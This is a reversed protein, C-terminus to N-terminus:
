GVKVKSSIRKFEKTFVRGNSNLVIWCAIYDVALLYPCLCRFGILKGQASTTLSTSSHRLAFRQKEFCFLLGRKSIAPNNM